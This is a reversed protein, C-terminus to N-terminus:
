KKFGMPEEKGTEMKDPLKTELKSFRKEYEALQKELLLFFRKAHKPSFLFQRAQNGSFIIFVFEEESFSINVNNVAYLIPDLNVKIVKQEEEMIKNKVRLRM